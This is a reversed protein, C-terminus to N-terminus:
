RLVINNWEGEDVFELKYDPACSHMTPDDNAALRGHWALIIRKPTM